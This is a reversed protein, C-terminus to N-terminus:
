VSRLDTPLTIIGDVADGTVLSQTQRTRVDRNIRAEALQIFTPIAGTLDARALWDAISSQLSSYDNLM